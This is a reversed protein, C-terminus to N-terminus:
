AAPIAVQHQARAIAQAMRALAEDVVGEDMPTSICMMGRPAIYLGEELAARHVASVAAADGGLNLLSGVHTLTLDLGTGSLQQALGDALRDGLGNIRDIEAQTLLDLSACGAAMGLANGNFTGHHEIFPENRPDYIAMVDDRGGAAAVPLGGGIVKGLTTIDPSVGIKAQVGGEHLRMTIVEDLISVAGHERALELARRLYSETGPEIGHGQVPELLVAAVESGVATMTEELHGIDNFRVFSLMRAVPAPVGPGLDAQSGGVEQDESSGGAVQEWSGHYGGIAKVVRDRGTVARAARVAVMVAETGSNTFRVKDIAPVRACIREALEAQLRLPAPHASGSRLAAEVAAVIAPAAHGHVLATYNGLLDIYENGDVDWLRYGDGRDIAVPFPPYYTTTRTSGAPMVRAMREFLQASKDLTHNSM